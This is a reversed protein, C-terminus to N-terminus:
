ELASFHEASIASIPKALNEPFFCEPAIRLKLAARRVIFADKDRARDDRLELEKFTYTEQVKQVSVISFTKLKEGNNGRVEVVVLANYVRDFGIRVFGIEPHMEKFDAPPFMKFFHVPRGRHRSTEEYKFNEWFLFPTQLDFPTFILDGFFPQTSASDVREPKGNEGLTWLEPARGSKILFSRREGADRGRLEVRTLAGSADRSGWVTGSYVKEDDSKRPKHVIEIQMCYDGPLRSKRFEVLLSEAERPTLQRVGRDTYQANASVALAFIAFLIACIKRSFNKM